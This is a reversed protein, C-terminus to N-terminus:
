DASECNRDAPVDAGSMCGRLIGFDGLDVDGDGEFDAVECAPESIPGGPGTYCVQFLGFDGQDVDADGDLDPGVTHVTVTVDITLPSNLANGSVTITAFHDGYSLTSASYSVTITDPEGVSSGTAPFVSLWGANDTINYNLTEGGVNKVTFTDSSLNDGLYVMRSISNRSLEIWPGTYEYEIITMNVDDDPRPDWHDGPQPNGYEGSWWYGHGYQYTNGMLYPNFGQSDPYPDYAELQIFYTDGPMLPVDDPNYSVGQHFSGAPQWAAKTIKTPGIQPGTPGNEEAAYIRWRFKTDWRHNASAAKVDVGAVSGGLAVFTQGWMFSWYGPSKLIGLGATRKNMTVLTGDNDAFVLYHLDCPPDHPSGNAAYAQGDIDPNGYGYSNSDKNRKYPAFKLDGGALGTIRVAYQTGPTMPIEGSRFRVWNDTNTGISVTQSGLVRWSTVNGGTNDELVAVEASTANTGALVFSVGTVSTGTATFTQYWTTDYSTWGSNDFYTSYDIPIDIDVTVTQDDIITVDPLVKPRIFFEPENVLISYIGGPLSDNDRWFGTCYCGDNTNAFEQCGSGYNCRTGLRKSPGYVSDTAPAIFLNTEAVEVYGMQPQGKIREIRTAHGKIDGEAWGTQAWIGLVGVMAALNWVAASKRDM